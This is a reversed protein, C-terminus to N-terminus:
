DSKLFRTNCGAYILLIYCTSLSFGVIHLFNKNFKVSGYVKINNINIMTLNLKQFTIVDVGM